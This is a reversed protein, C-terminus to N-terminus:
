PVVVLAGTTGAVVLLYFATGLAASVAVVRGPDRDPLTHRIVPISKVEPHTLVRNSAVAFGAVLVPGLLLSNVADLLTQTTADSLAITAIPGVTAAPAPLSPVATGYRAYAFLLPGAVVATAKSASAARGALFQPLVLVGLVLLGNMGVWPGLYQLSLPLGTALIGVSFWDLSLVDTRPCSGALVQERHVPHLLHVTARLALFTPVLLVYAFVRVQLGAASGVSGLAIATSFDIVGNLFWFALLSPAFLCGSLLATVHGTSLSFEQSFVDALSARLNSWRVRARTAREAIADSRTVDGALLSDVRRFYGVPSHSEGVRGVALGGVAWSGVGM